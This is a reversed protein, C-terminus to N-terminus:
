DPLNPEFSQALERDDEVIFGDPLKDPFAPNDQSFVRIETTSALAEIVPQIMRCTECEEKVVLVYHRM